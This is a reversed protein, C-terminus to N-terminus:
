YNAISVARVPVGTLLQALWPRGLLGYFLAALLMPPLLNLALLAPSTFYDLFITWGYNAPALALSVLGLGLAALLVMGWNWVWFGARRGQSLAPDPRTQFLFYRFIRTM